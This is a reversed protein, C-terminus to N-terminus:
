AIDRHTPEGGPSLVHGWFASPRVKRFPFAVAVLMANPCRIRLSNKVKSHNRCNHVIFYTRSSYNKPISEWTARLVCFMVSNAQSCVESVFLRGKFFHDQVSKVLNEREVSFGISLVSFKLTLVPHFIHFNCTLIHKQLYTKIISCWSHQVSM